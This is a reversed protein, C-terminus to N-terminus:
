AYHPVMRLGYHPIFSCFAILTRPAMRGVPPLLTCCWVEPSVVLECYLAHHWIKEMDEWDMIKGRQIPHKLSLLGRKEQADNGVYNDKPAGLMIGGVGPHRPWGLVTDFCSRPADEGGLGAKILGSGNDIVLTHQHIEEEEIM